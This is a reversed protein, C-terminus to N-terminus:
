EMITSGTCCNGLLQHWPTNWTLDQRAISECHRALGDEKSCNSSWQGDESWVGVNKIKYIVWVLTTPLLSIHQYISAAEQQNSKKQKEHKRSYLFDYCKKNKQSTKRNLPKWSLCLRWCQIVPSNKVQM